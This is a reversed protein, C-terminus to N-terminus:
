FNKFIKHFSANKSRTDIYNSLIAGGIRIAFAKAFNLFNGPADLFGANM